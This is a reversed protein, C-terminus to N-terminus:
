QREQEIKQKLEIVKVTEYVYNRGAGVRKAGLMMKVDDQYFRRRYWKKHDLLKVVQNTGIYAPVIGARVLDLTIHIAAGSM